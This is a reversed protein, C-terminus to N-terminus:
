SQQTWIMARQIRETKVTKPTMPKLINKLHMRHEPTSAIYLKQAKHLIKYYSYGSSNCDCKWMLPNLTKTALAMELHPCGGGECPGLWMVVKGPRMVFHKSARAAVEVVQQVRLVPRQLYQNQTEEGSEQNRLPLRALEQRCVVYLKGVLFSDGMRTM